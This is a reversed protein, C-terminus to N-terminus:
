CNKGQVLFGFKSFFLLAASPSPFIKGPVKKQEKNFQKVKDTPFGTSNSFVAPQQEQGIRETKESKMM